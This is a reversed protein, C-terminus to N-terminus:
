NDDDNQEASPQWEYMNDFWLSGSNGTAVFARDRLTFAVAGIRASGEFGTKQKWVDAIPDYEWTTTVYSGNQGCTVYGKNGLTFAVAGYRAIAYDDDYDEDSDDFIKRKEKWEGTAGVTPDFMWLDTQATGNSNGSIVYAKNNLVFVMAETRKNNGM